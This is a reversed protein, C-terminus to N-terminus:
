HQFDYYSIKLQTLIIHNDEFGFIWFLLHLIAKEAKKFPTNACWTFLWNCGHSLLFFHFIVPELGQKGGFASDM